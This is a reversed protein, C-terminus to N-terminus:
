DKQRGLWECVDPWYFRRYKGMRICPLPNPNRVLARTRTQEYVWSKRVQLRAALQEPTLLHSPDLGAGSKTEMTTSLRELTRM